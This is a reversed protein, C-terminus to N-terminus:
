KLSLSLPALIMKYSKLAGWYGGVVIGFHKVIKIVSILSAIIKQLIKAGGEGIGGGRGESAVISLWRLSLSLTAGNDTTPNQRGGLAGLQEKKYSSINVIYLLKSFM